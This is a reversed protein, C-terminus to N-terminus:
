RLPKGYHRNNLMAISASDVQAALDNKNYRYLVAAARALVLSDDRRRREEFPNSSM